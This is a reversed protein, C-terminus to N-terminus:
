RKVFEVGLLNHFDQRVDEENLHESYVNFTDYSSDFEYFYDDKINENRKKNDKFYVVTDDALVCKTIAYNSKRLIGFDKCDTHEILWKSADDKFKLTNKNNILDKSNIRYEISNLNLLAFSLTFFSVIIVFTLLKEILKDM